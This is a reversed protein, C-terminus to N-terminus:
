DTLRKRWYGTRRKHHAVAVIDIQDQKERYVLQYPFKKLIYKRTRFSAPPWTAPFSLIQERGHEVERLFREALEKSISAYRSFAERLEQIAKPHLRVKM